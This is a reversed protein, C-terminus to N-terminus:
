MAKNLLQIDLFTLSDYFAWNELIQQDLVTHYLPSYSIAMDTSYALTLTTDPTFDPKNNLKRPNRPRKSKLSLTLLSVKPSM